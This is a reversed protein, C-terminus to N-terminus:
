AVCRPSELRSVFEATTSSMSSSIKFVREEFFTYMPKILSPYHLQLLFFSSFLIKFASSSSIGCPIIIDEIIVNDFLSDEPSGSCLLFPQRTNKSRSKVFEEM